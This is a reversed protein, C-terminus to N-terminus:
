SNGLRREASLITNELLATITMPGVGGPVPTIFAAVDKASEFHVDGKISFGSKKSADPVRTLGVDIVVAGPKVMDGTVFEPRGTAVVLIDGQLCMEKLNPTKSNCISVTCNGPYGDRAMLIAMPLGVIQSRGVVVCHKGATPINYYELLKLIGFPTAPIFSEQNKAMKGFNEPHFGDVDKDPHIASIVKEVNIHKPLPLQVLIGDVDEQSNLEAIQALLIEEPVDANFRILTSKFGASECSKVKNAIYTESAGDNGILVAALHPAHGYSQVLGLVKQRILEQLHLSVEKGNLIQAM